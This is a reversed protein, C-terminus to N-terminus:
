LQLLSPFLNGFFNKLLLQLQLSLRLLLLGLFSQHVFHESLLLFFKIQHVKIIFVISTVIIPLFIFLFEMTVGAYPSDLLSFEKPNDLLPRYLQNDDNNMKVQYNGTAQRM